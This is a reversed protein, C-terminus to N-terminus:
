ADPRTDESRCEDADLAYPDPIAFDALIRRELAEMEEAEAEDIHDHGLLHLTGHVVMHAYHHELAKGQDRAEREVVDHCIVLDGLLPLDLGAPAEFPFSLVNTPRDKGRYDRNLAQSEAEEVFRVTLEPPEHPADLDHHRRHHALAAATWAQLQDAEPLGDARVAVQRDIVPPPLRSM